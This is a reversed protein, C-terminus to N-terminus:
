VILVRSDLCSRFIFASALLVRRFGVIVQSDVRRVVLIDLTFTSVKTETM